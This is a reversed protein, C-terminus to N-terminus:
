SILARGKGAAAMRAQIYISQLLGLAIFTVIVSSGGYSMLPLPVGTIPMIGITMGVNVFVQFMLMALIGGAILTGYLNKSMTLIRLTRWILLAYLSLVVAAGAFGYTEGVAAFIFDTDNAPLFNLKTQTANAGRGTKGGSGIAIESQLINYTQNQPDRSPNLFGTLRQVQYPKLVHVGLAPAGALVLAISAVFMAVLGTLQKWSTGAFFLMTFGVAVYVMGTGLDPQPIVLLAPLLALLMIRATTRHEHLRRSRDVAFAALAAILLVKGFESSQVQLYPLPIWRHAGRITPMGFVVVNLAIMLGFLGFKYERLRSYDIRSLLLAVFLGIGAYIGQREVYYLPQGPVASRTAGNLTVLSCAVLGLAGLLLLPDFLPLFRPAPLETEDVAHIPTASM